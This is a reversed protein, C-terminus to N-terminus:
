LWLLLVRRLVCLSDQEKYASTFGDVNGMAQSRGQVGLGTRRLGAGGVGEATAKPGQCLSSRSGAHEKRM